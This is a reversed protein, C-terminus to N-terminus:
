TVARSAAAPGLPEHFRDPMKELGLRVDELSIEKAVVLSPVTPFARHTSRMLRVPVTADGLGADFIRIAHRSSTRL